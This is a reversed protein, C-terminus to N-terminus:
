HNENILDNIGNRLKELGKILLKEPCAINMRLFDDGNQGFQIGPSLFLGYNKRLYESLENSGIDLKSCDLWLLYTAECEVLRIISLENILFEKVTQKNKYLVERLEDVWEESDNYAAITSINSFANPLSFFDIDRQIALKEQFIKNKTHVVSNQIGAINFTKTPSICTIAGYYDVVKEFPNYQKGPDTLDCHIEDSVLIVDHKRCLEGIEILDEKSWIKGIPNHPNCLIFMKSDKLKEDLDNFDISYNGNEYILENELIQRNNNKIVQFFVHYVPSQILIKDDPNTLCRIICTIAPMVGQFFLMDNLDMKFDYRRHWWNIYADFLENQPISYAFIPHMCRKEIAKQIEPAVCFDMDAVWM